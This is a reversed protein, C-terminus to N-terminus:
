TATPKSLWPRVTFSLKMTALPGSPQSIRSMSLGCSERRRNRSCNLFQSGIKFTGSVAPQRLFAFVGRARQPRPRQRCGAASLSRRSRQILAAAVGARLKATAAPRVDPDGSGPRETDAATSPTAPVPFRTFHHGAPGCRGGRVSGVDVGFWIDNGLIPDHWGHQTPPM